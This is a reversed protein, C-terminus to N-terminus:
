PSKKLGARPGSWRRGSWVVSGPLWCLVWVAIRWLSWAEFTWSDRKRVSCGIEKCILAAAIVDAQIMGLLGIWISFDLPHLIVAALWGSIPLVLLRAVFGGPRNWRITKAWRLDHQLAEAWTREVVLTELTLRSVRVPRLRQGLQFDDALFSGFEAWDVQKLFRDREFLLGAGLGFDVTGSKRLFLVGPYFDANVFLAEFLASPQPAKRIFYPFTLMSANCKAFESRAAQLFGISAVIDADSWLWLEGEAHPALAIQWAIKPNAVSDPESRYIPRLQAKPYKERMAEPERIGLLMESQPDLQTVFSELAAALQGLGQAGLPPLPKFISLSRPPSDFSPVPAAQGQGRVLWWAIIWWAAGATTWLALAIEGFM